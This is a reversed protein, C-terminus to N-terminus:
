ESRALRFGLNNGTNGPYNASRVASRCYQATSGWGGGRLVRYSGTAPGPPNTVPSTGLHQQWWDQVWEWENGHMDYLGYGNPQRSGVPQSTWGNPMDGCWWMYQSHVGCAECGDGCELVDGHSFRAQTGARAAREWEAESPLRFGTPQGASALFANLAEVFGGPGAVMTWSVCYVPYAPGVGYTPGSCTFNPLTGMVAQWQGQTVEYKGMWYGQTLTVQHLDEEDSRGREDVPSGMMFTGASICVMVLPVGGPLTITLVAGPTCGAPDVGVAKSWGTTGGSEFGDGFVAPSVVGVSGSWRSTDAREFGDGFVATPMTACADGVGDFDTDAQDPNAV